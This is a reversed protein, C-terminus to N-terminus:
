AFQPNVSSCRKGGPLSGSTVARYVFLLVMGAAATGCGRHVLGLSNFSSCAVATDRVLRDCGGCLGPLFRRHRVSVWHSGPLLSTNVSPPFAYLRRKRNKDDQEFVGSSGFRVAVVTLSRSNDPLRLRSGAPLLRPIFGLIFHAGGPQRACFTATQLTRYHCVAANVVQPPL